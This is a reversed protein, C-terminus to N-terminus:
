IKSCFWNFLSCITWISHGLTLFGKNDDVKGIKQGPENRGEQRGM